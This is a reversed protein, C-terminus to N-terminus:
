CIIFNGTIVSLFLECSSAMGSWVRGQFYDPSLRSIEVKTKNKIKNNIKNKVVKLVTM